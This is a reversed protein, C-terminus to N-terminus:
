YSSDSGLRLLSGFRFFGCALFGFVSWDVYGLGFSGRANKVGQFPASLNDRFTPLFNGSSAAYYGLLACNEDVERLFDFSVCIFWGVLWGVLWILWCM